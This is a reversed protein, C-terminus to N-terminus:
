TRGLQAWSCIYVPRAGFKIYIDAIFSELPTKRSDPPDGYMPPDRLVQACCALTPTVQSLDGLVCGIRTVSHIHNAVTLLHTDQRNRFSRASDSPIYM